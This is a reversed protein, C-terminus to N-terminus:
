LGSQPTKWTTAVLWGPFRESLAMTVTAPHLTDTAETATLGAFAVTLTM